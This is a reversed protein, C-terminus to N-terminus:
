KEVRKKTGDDLYLGERLIYEVVGESCWKGGQSTRAGSDRFCDRARTSSIGDEGEQSGEVLEIREAWERKWGTVESDGGRLGEVFAVQDRREPPYRMTVNIRHKGFLEQLPALSHDPLYYKPDVVRTLTDYGTLHVQEPTTVGMEGQFATYADSSEIVQAKEVFMAAKTVGIDIVPELSPSSRKSSEEKGIKIGGGEEGRGEEVKGAGGGDEGRSLARRLDKAFEGMMAVRQDFGAPMAAKDANRTALLLLLRKPRGEGRNEDHRLAHLCMQM